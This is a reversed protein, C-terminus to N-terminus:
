PVPRALSGEPTKSEPAGERARELLTRLGARRPEPSLSLARELLPIAEDGRKMRVLLEGLHSLSLAVSPHGPRLAKQQIALAREYHARAEAHRGMDALVQGLEDLSQAVDPHNAGLAKERLALAHQFHTRAEAY